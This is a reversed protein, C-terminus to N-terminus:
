FKYLVKARVLNSQSGCVGGVCVSNQTIVDEIRAGFVGGTSLTAEIGIAVLPSFQWDKNGANGFNASIDSVDVGAALYVHPNTQTAGPIVPLTPAVLGFTPLISLIQSAPAGVGALFQMTVPGSFSFGATNGNFNNWGIDGEVFWYRQGKSMDSSYGAIVGVLGQSTVLSANNVGSVGSVGASGAGGGAELGIYWGSGAYPLGFFGQSAPAKLPMDAAIAPACAAAAALALGLALRGIMSKRM